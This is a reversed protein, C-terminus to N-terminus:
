IEFEKGPYLPSMERLRKVIPPLVELFYNVEEETNGRGMSIRISGQAIEPAIGMALLVHSPELKMSACASGSSIAIGKNDLGLVISEGEVYKIAFSVHGPLRNESHGLYIVDDIEELVGKVLYERLERLKKAKEDLESIAIEVAKAFGVIGPINETGARKGKEHEGGHMLPTIKVRKRKYLTGVGKPGHLKHSSMSLLDVNLKEVDIELTGFSQVADTHFIIGRKKAIEGIEEIPQISGVVNNAHMISILTTKSNIANEVDKPNVVGNKDVPIYTVDYGVKELYKCTNGVAPHEISSTIIHNGKKKYAEAVGKIALNDSETGGSTFIIEEPKANIASAITDRSKLLLEFAENGPTHPESANGYFKTFCPLMTELVEPLVQTTASHDFYIRDM